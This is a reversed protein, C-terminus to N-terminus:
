RVKSCRYKRIGLSEDWVRNAHSIFEKKPMIETQIQRETENRVSGNLVLQSGASKVAELILSYNPDTQRQTRLLMAHPRLIRGVLRGHLNVAVRDFTHIVASFNSVEFHGCVAVLVFLVGEKLMRLPHRSRRHFSEIYPHVLPLTRDLFTKMQGTMSELYLPTAFVIADAEAMQDLVSCVDDDHICKGPTEVWCAFRHGCDCSLIRKESLWVVSTNAGEAICGDLFSSLLWGTTSQTRPTPSGNIALIKM